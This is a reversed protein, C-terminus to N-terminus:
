LIWLFLVTELITIIVNVWLLVKTSSYNLWSAFTDPDDFSICYDEDGEKSNSFLSAMKGLGICVFVLAVLSLGLMGWLIAKFGKDKQNRIINNYTLFALFVWLIIHFAIQIGSMYHIFDVQDKNFKICYENEDLSNQQLSNFTAISITLGSYVPIMILMTLLLIIFFRSTPNDYYISM